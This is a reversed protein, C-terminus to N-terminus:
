KLEVKRIADYVDGSNGRALELWELNFSQDPQQAVKAAYITGASLDGEKDAVFKSLIVGTGDDGSYVTKHDKMVRSMEYSLRGMAYHKVVQTTVSEGRTDPILEVPFGYDYPNAQAGLYDTMDVVNEKWGAKNALPEYEESTLGTNWPTVSANCNNWTGHVGDYNINEGDLVSWSEGNKKLYMKATNGPRCEFNTFLYAEDSSSTIPVFMNGDPQNCMEKLSGDLRNVQGFKQGRIDGPIEAGVRALVQYNGSAVKVDYVDDGTPVGVPTFSDGAKFGNVIGIVGRNYPFRSMASPHQVNFLVEDNPTVTIGTIEAGTPVTAFRELKQGDWRWLMNNTHDSTDESIWLNGHHDVYLGDPNAVNNVDCRDKFGSSVTSKVSKDYGGGVILPKLNSINQNADLAAEYVIGCKNEELKIDGEGDSMTKDISSMAIYLKNNKEDYAVGEMKRFEASAGMQKAYERTELFPAMPDKLSLLRDDDAMVNTVVCSLGALAILSLKKKM